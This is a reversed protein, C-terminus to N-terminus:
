HATRSVPPFPRLTVGRRRADATAESAARLNEAGFSRFGADAECRPALEDVVGGLSQVIQMVEAPIQYGAGIIARGIDLLGETFAGSAAYLNCRDTDGGRERFTQVADRFGFLIDRQVAEVVRVIGAKVESGIPLLSVIAKVGPLVWEAYNIISDATDSPGTPQYTGADDHPPQQRCAPAATIAVVALMLALFTRRM